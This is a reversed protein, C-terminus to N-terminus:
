SDFPHTSSSYSWFFRIFPNIFTAATDNLIDTNHSAKGKIIEAEELRNMTRGKERIHLPIFSTKEYDHNSSLCHTAIASDEEKKKKFANRHEAIHTSYKRGTQGIYYSSCDGCSIKYIGSKSTISTPDKLKILNKLSTLTYFGVRFNYRRLERALEVSLRDLYPLRLWKLNDNPAPTNSRTQSLISRLKKRSILRDIDLNLGNM